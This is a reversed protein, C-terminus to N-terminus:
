ERVPPLKHLVMGAIWGRPVAGFDRSDASRARNDGLVFYTDPEVRYAANGLKGPDTMRNGPLYTERLPRDNIHVLGKRIQVKEGPLAIVRKVTLGDEWPLDVAVIRGREIAHLRCVLRCMFRREGEILTPEMSAGLIEVSSILIRTIFFYLSLSLLFVALFTWADSRGPTTSLLLRKRVHGM